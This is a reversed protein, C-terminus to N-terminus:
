ERCERYKSCAAIARSVQEVLKENPTTSLQVLTKCGKCALLERCGEDIKSLEALAGVINIEVQFFGIEM